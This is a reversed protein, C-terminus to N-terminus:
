RIRTINSGDITTGQYGTGLVSETSTTLLTPLAMLIGAVAALGIPVSLKNRQSDESYEKFKLAAKIGFGIGAIYSIGSLVEALGGFQSKLTGTVNNLGQASVDPAVLFLLAGVMLTMFMIMNKKNLVISM